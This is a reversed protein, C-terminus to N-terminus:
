ALQGLSRCLQSDPAGLGRLSLRALCAHSQVPSRAPTPLYNDFRSARGRDIVIPYRHILQPVEDQAFPDAYVRMVSGSHTVAAEDTSIRQRGREATALPIGARLRDGPTGPGLVRAFERMTFNRRVAAPGLEVALGASCSM